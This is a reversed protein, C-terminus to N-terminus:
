KNVKAIVDKTLDVVTNGESIAAVNSPDLVIIDIKKEAIVAEIAAKIKQDVPAMVQQVEKARNELIPKLSKNAAEEQKKEDTLKLIKARESDFKPGYEADIKNIQMEVAGIGSYNAYVEGTTVVGVNAASAVASAGIIGVVALTAIKKSLNM